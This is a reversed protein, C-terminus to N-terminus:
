PARVLLRSVTVRDLVDPRPEVGLGPAGPVDMTGGRATFPVTLDEAFYRASPGLDPPLTCGPLAAVALNVARGLGTELMGGCRLGMGRERCWAHIRRAELLGGVRGVKLSVADCAGLARAAELDGLSGISEDLCVPVDIGRVLAAHGVLDDPAFPQEVAALGLAPAALRRLAAVDDRSGSDYSGNADVLLAVDDGLAARVAGVPGVDWGPRVKLKFARHGDARWRAATAVLDDVTDAIGLAIGTRVTTHTAGLFAALSRGEARLSADIAAGELAARAMAHGRVDELPRGALLRPVLHHELVHLAGATYEPWYTPEPEAVCEGWGDPGDTALARVLAVDRETRTGHATRFPEALVLRVRLLEVGELAVQM